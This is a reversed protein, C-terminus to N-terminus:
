LSSTDAVLEADVIEAGKNTVLVTLTPRANKVVANILGYLSVGVFFNSAPDSLFSSVFGMLLGGLCIADYFGIHRRAFDITSTRVQKLQLKMM